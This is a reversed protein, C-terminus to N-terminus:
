KIFKVFTSSQSKHCIIDENFKSNILIHEINITEGRTMRM